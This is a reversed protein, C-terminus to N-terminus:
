RSPARPGALGDQAYVPRRVIERLAGLTHWPGELMAIAVLRRLAAHSLSGGPDAFGEFLVDVRGDARPRLQWLSDFATMRVRDERVPRLGPASHGTLTVVLTEPDQAMNWAVVAERDALPWPMGTIFLTVGRLPGDSELRRAERTAYVWEHAHEADLLVAALALLPADIVTTARLAPLADPRRRFWLRTETGADERWLQWGDTPENSLPESAADAARASGRGLGWLALGSVALRVIVGRRGSVDATSRPTSRVQM